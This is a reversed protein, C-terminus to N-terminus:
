VHKSKKIKSTLWADVMQQHQEPTTQYYFEHLEGKEDYWALTTQVDRREISFVPIADFDFVVADLTKLSKLEEELSQNREQWEKAHRNHADCVSKLIREHTSRLMFM